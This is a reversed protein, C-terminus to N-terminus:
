ADYAEKTTRAAQGGGWGRLPALICGVACATPFRVGFYGLETPASSVHRVGGAVKNKVEDEAGFTAPGEDCRLDAGVKECVESANDALHL